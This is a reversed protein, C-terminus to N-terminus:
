PELVEPKITTAQVAGGALKISATGKTPAPAANIDLSAGRPKHAEVTACEIAKLGVKGAAHVPGISGLCM